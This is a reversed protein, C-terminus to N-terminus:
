ELDFVQKLFEVLAINFPNNSQNALTELRTFSQRLEFYKEGGNNSGDPLISKSETEAPKQASEDHCM